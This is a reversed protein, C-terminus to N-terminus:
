RHCFVVTFGELGPDPVSGTGDAAGFIGSFILVKNKREDECLTKAINEIVFQVANGLFDAAPSFGKYKHLVVFFEHAKVERQLGLVRIVGDPGDDAFKGVHDALLEGGVQAGDGVGVGQKFPYEVAYIEVGGGM